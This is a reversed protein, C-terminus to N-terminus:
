LTKVRWKEYMLDYDELSERASIEMSYLTNPSDYTDKKEKVVFNLKITYVVDNAEKVVSQLQVNSM